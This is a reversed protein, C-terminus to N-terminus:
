SSSSFSGFMSATWMLEGIESWAGWGISLAPLGQGRRYWALADLYANAAAYNGQAPAGLLGAASSFLVFHDLPCDRTLLHLNWAGDIKAAMVHRFRAETQHLLLADYGTGALANGTRKKVVELHAAFLEPWGAPNQKIAPSNM